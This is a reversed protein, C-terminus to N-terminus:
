KKNDFPRNNYKEQKYLSIITRCYDIQHTCTANLRDLWNVLFKEDKAISEVILNISKATLTPVAELQKQLQKMLDSNIKRNYLDKAQALLYGTRALYVILENGRMVAEEGNESISVELAAQIKECEKKIAEM